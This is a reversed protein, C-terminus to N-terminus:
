NTKKGCWSRSRALHIVVIFVAWAPLRDPLSSAPQNVTLKVVSTAAVLGVITPLSGSAEGSVVPRRIAVGVLSVVGSAPSSVPRSIAVSVLSVVGSTPSSVVPRSIAVGVTSVIGRAPPSVVMVIGSAPWSIAVVVLSDGVIVASAVRIYGPGVAIAGSATDGVVVRGCLWDLPSVVVAVPPSIIVPLGPVSSFVALVSIESDFCASYVSKDFSCVMQAVNRRAGGM